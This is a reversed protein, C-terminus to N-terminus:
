NGKQSFPSLRNEKMFADIVLWTFEIITSPLIIQQMSVKRLKVQSNSFKRDTWTDVSVRFFTNVVTQYYSQSLTFVTQYSSQILWYQKTTVRQFQWYQTIHVRFFSKSYNLKSPVRHFHWYQKIYVRFFHTNNGLLERFIDNNNSTLEPFTHLITQWYSESFTLIAQHRSFHTTNNPLLEKLTGTINSM